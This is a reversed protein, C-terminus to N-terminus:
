IGPITVEYRGPRGSTIRLIEKAESTLGNYGLLERLPSRTPPSGDAQSFNEIQHDHLTDEMQQIDDIRALNGQKDALLVNDIGAPGRPKNIAKLTTFARKRRESSRINKVAKATDIKGELILTEHYVDLYADRELWSKKRARVLIKKSLHLQQMPHFLENGQYIDDKFTHGLAIIDTALDYRTKRCSIVAKWYKYISYATHVAPSWPSTYHRPIKKQV